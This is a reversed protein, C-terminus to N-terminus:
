VLDAGEDPIAPLLPVPLELVVDATEQLAIVAGDAPHGRPEEPAGVEVPVTSLYNSERRSLAPTLPLWGALM